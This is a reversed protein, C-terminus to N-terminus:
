LKTCNRIRSWPQWKDLRKKRSTCKTFYLPTQTFSTWCKDRVMIFLSVDQWFANLLKETVYHELAQNEMVLCYKFDHFLEYNRTYRGANEGTESFAITRNGDKVACGQDSYYVPVINSFLKAAELRFTAECNSVFFAIGPYKGSNHRRKSPDVLWTWTEPITTNSTTTSAARTSWQEQRPRPLHLYAMYFTMQFPNLSHSLILDNVEEMSHQLDSVAPGIQYLRDMGEATVNLVDDDNSTLVLWEDFISGGAEGNVYLVKGPFHQLILSASCERPFGECPGFQGFILIDSTATTNSMESYSWPEEVSQYDPFIPQLSFNWGCHYVKGNKFSPNADPPSHYRGDTDGLVTPQVFSPAAKDLSFTLSRANYFIPLSLLVSVSLYIFSVITTRHIKLVIKMIANSVAIRRRPLMYEIEDALLPFFLCTASSSHFLTTIKRNGRTGAVAREPKVELSSM